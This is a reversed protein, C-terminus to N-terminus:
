SRVGLTTTFEATRNGSSGTWQVQIRVPLIIKDDSHDVADIVGDGNLDRPMGFAADDLDERLVNGASVPFLIRGCFGDADNTQLNVGPVAFNMGAATGPGNPDDAPDNNFREFVEEFPTSQLREVVARAAQYVQTSEQNGRGLVSIQTVTSMAGVVAVVLIISAILVEILTFGSSSSKPPVRHIRKPNRMTKHRAAASPNSREMGKLRKLM